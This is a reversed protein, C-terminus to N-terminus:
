AFAGPHRRLIMQPCVLTMVCEGRDNFVEWLFKVFGRDQKSQSARADLVSGRVTLSDGPRVPKLWKVEDIGPAGMSATDLLLGDAILKMMICCSHWGSAALGGLMTQRAAEADLHMPQPDYQAAFGIIEERTVGRPGYEATWEVSFDEFYYKPM